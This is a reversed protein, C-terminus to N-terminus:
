LVNFTTGADLDNQGFTGAADFDLIVAVINDTATNDNTSRIIVNTQGNSLETEVYVDDIGDLRVTDSGDTFGTIVDHSRDVADLDILSCIEHIASAQLSNDTIAQLCLRVMNAEAEPSLPPKGARTSAKIFRWGGSVDDASPDDGASGEGSSIEASLGEGAPGAREGDEKSRDEEAGNEADPRQGAIDPAAKGCAALLLTLLPLLNLPAAGKAKRLRTAVRRREDENVAALTGGAEALLDGVKERVTDSAFKVRASHTRVAGGVPVNRDDPM